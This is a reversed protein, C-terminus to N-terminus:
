SAGMVPSESRLKGLEARSRDLQRRCLGLSARTRMLIVSSVIMGLLGGLAFAVLIWLAISQPGVTYVLLDLSVPISNRLAFLVGAVVTALAILFTLIKRLLKM